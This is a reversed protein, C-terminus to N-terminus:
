IKFKPYNKPANKKSIQLDLFRMSSESFFAVKLLCPRLFTGENLNPNVSRGFNSLPACGKPGGAGVARTLAEFLLCLVNTPYLTFM